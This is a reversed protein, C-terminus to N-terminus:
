TAREESSPATTRALPCPGHSAHRPQVFFVPFCLSLHMSLTRQSCHSSILHSSMLHPACLRTQGLRAWAAWHVSGLPPTSPTTACPRGPLAEDVNMLRRPRMVQHPPFSPRDSALQRAAIGASGRGKPAAQQLRSAAAPSPFWAHAQLVGAGAMRASRNRRLGGGVARARASQWHSGGCDQLRQQVVQPSNM